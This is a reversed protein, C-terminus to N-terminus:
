GAARSTRSWRRKVIWAGSLAGITNATLDVLDGQRNLEPIEQLVEMGAGYLTSFTGAIVLMRTRSMATASRQRLGRAILATFVGFIVAHVLKDVSLLDAWEWQPLATGPTLCLFAIFLAWVLAWWLSRTM